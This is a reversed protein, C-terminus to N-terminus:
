FEPSADNMNGSPIERLQNLIEEESAACFASRAAKAIVLLVLTAVGIALPNNSIGFAQSLWAAVASAAGKATVGGAQSFSDSEGPKCISDRIEALFKITFDRAWALAISRSGSRYALLASGAGPLKGLPSREQNPGPGRVRRPTLVRAPLRDLEAHAFTELEALEAESFM